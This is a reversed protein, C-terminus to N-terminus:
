EGIWQMHNTETCEFGLREALSSWDYCKKIHLGIVQAGLKKLEQKCQRIFSVGLKGRRMAPDLYLVDNMAILTKRYHLHTKVIWVAYALLKGNERLTYVKVIGAAEMKLYAEHDIDLPIKDRKWAIEEYHREFMERGGGIVLDLYREQSFIM